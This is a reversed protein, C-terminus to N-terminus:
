SESERESYRERESDTEEEGEPKRPPKIEKLFSDVKSYALEPPCPELGNLGWRTVTVVEALLNRGVLFDPTLSGPPRLGSLRAYDRYLNSSRALRGQPVNYVRLIWLGRFEDPELIECHVFWKSQNRVSGTQYRAVHVLYEGEPVKTAYFDPYENPRNSSSDPHKVAPRAPARGLAEPAVKLPRSM